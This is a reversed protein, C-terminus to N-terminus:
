SSGAFVPTKLTTGGAQLTLVSGGGDIVAMNGAKLMLNNGATVVFDRAADANINQPAKANIDQKNLELFTGNANVMRLNTNKSDFLTSNGLNDQTVIKGNGMDYQTDYTCFEGNAQSTSLTITKNHGSVELFICNSLDDAIPAGPDASFVHVVTEVRMEEPDLGMDRWYWKDNGAFQWLSIRVGRRIDPATRRNSSDPLWTAEITQGAFSTGSVANGLSDQGNYEMTDVRDAIEGDMMSLKEHPTVKLLSTRLGKNEAAIGIAVCRFQSSDNNFQGASEEAMIWGKNIM